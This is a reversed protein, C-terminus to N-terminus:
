ARDLRHTSRAHPVEAPVPSAPFPPSRAATRGTRVSRRPPPEPPNRPIAHRGSAANRDASEVPRSTCQRKITRIQARKPRRGRRRDTFATGGTGSWGSAFTSRVRPDLDSGMWSIRIRLINLAALGKRRFPGKARRSPCQRPVPLDPQREVPRASTRVARVPRRGSLPSPGAGASQRWGRNRGGAGLHAPRRLPPAHRAEPDRPRRGTEILESSLEYTKRANM